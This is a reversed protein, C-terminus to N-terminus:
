SVQASPEHHALLIGIVGNDTWGDDNEFMEESDMSGIVKLQM